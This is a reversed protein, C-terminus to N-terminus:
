IQQKIILHQKGHKIIRFSYFVIANSEANTAVTNLNSAGISAVEGLDNNATTITNGMGELHVTCYYRLGTTPANAPVIQLMKRDGSYRGANQLMAIIQNLQQHEM